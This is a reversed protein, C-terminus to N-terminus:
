FFLRFVGHADCLAEAVPNLAARNHQVYQKFRTSVGNVDMAPNLPVRAAAMADTMRQATVGSDQTTLVYGQFLNCQIQNGLHIVRCLTAGLPQGSRQALFLANNVKQEPDDPGYLVYNALAQPSVATSSQALLMVLRGDFPGQGAGELYRSLGDGPLRVGNQMMQQVFAATQEIEEPKAGCILDMLSAGDMQLGAQSLLSVVAEKVPGKDPAARYYKGLLARFFSLNLELGLLLSLVKPKQDGDTTCTLLYQEVTGASLTKVRSLLVPLVELRLAPEDRNESLYHSLIADKARQDLGFGDAALFLAGKDAGSLDSRDLMTCLLSVSVSVFVGSKAVADLETRALSAGHRSFIQEMLCDLEVDTPKQACLASVIEAARDPDGGEDLVFRSIVEMSVPVGARAASCYIDQRTSLSDKTQSLYEELFIHDDGTLGARQILPLALGGKDPADPFRSLMQFLADKCDLNDTNGLIGRAMDEKGNYLAYRLLHANLTRNYIAEVKLFQAVFDRHVTDGMSDFTLLLAAFPESSSELSGDGDMFDYLDEEEPSIAEDLELIAEYERKLQSTLSNRAGDPCGGPTILTFMHVCLRAILTGVYRGDKKECESLNNLAESLNGVAANRIAQRAVNKLPTDPGQLSERLMENGCYLCRWVKKEKIYELTGACCDCRISNYSSAM